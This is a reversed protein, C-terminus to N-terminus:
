LKRVERILIPTKPVDRHGGHSGTEVLAIADVVEMGEVVKGFVAYGPKGPSIDLFDNDQLNIFFQATASHPNNTRAMAITGRLNKLEGTSENRIPPNTQKQRMDKDFGGGQIMFGSIVRHFLTGSFFGQEVYQLFNEVTVPAQEAFLQLTIDGKGTSIVVKPVEVQVPTAAVATLVLAAPLLRTFFSFVQHM